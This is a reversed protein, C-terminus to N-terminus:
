RPGCVFNGMIACDWCPEDEHCVQVFPSPEGVAADRLLGESSCSVLMFVCAAVLLRRMM